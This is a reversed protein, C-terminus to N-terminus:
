PLRSGRTTREIMRDMQDLQRQFEIRGRRKNEAEAASQARDLCDDIAKEDSLKDAPLTTLCEGLSTRAKSTADDALASLVGGCALAAALLLTTLATRM